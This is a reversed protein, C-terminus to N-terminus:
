LIETTIQPKVNQAFSFTPMAITDQLNTTFIIDFLNLGEDNKRRNIQIRCLKSYNPSGAWGHLAKVIADIIDYVKWAAQKQLQPASGSTNTLKVDCVTIIVNILGQQVLNGENSYSATNINILSCPYKVPQAVNYYDLQGWDEDVYKLTTVIATLRNQIDILLQKM